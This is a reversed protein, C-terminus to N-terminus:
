QMGTINDTVVGGSRQYSPTVGKKYYGDDYDIHSKTQGTQKLKSSSPKGNSSTQPQPTNVVKPPKAKKTKAQITAYDGFLGDDNRARVRIDYTTDGKLAKFTYELGSTSQESGYYLDSDVKYSLFYGKVEGDIDKSKSWSLKLTSDTIDSVVLNSPPSPKKDIIVAKQAKAQM